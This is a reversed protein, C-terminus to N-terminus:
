DILFMKKTATAYPTRLEYYLIGSAGLESKNVRVENYGKAFDQEIMRLMRGTVDYITISANGGEPLNFGIMTEGNFPNPRNQYLEFESSSVVGSGTNFNLGVNLYGESGEEYAEATTLASNVTLVESLKGNANATFTLTFLEDDSSVSVGKVDNWSTTIYGDNLHSLGFNNENIAISGGEINTLTVVNPQFGLTFQYGLIQNFDSSKFVVSYENGAKLEQDQLEFTLSRNSRSNTGQLSASNAKADMNVDGVKIGVFRVAPQTGDFNIINVSESILDLFPNEPDNFTNGEYVFRWSNNNTFGDITNLIVRRIEVLDQGTVSGSRNVDAAIIKFPSDLREIGLIHRQILLIDLTNVGNRIADNRQPSLSFSSGIEIGSLEFIGEVNTITTNASIGDAIISVSEVAVSEETRVLGAVIGGGLNGPCPLGMNNQITITTTCFDWNGDLDGVWIRVSRLGVDECTFTMSHNSAPPPNTSNAENIPYEIRFILDENETCNDYSGADFTVASVTVMQDEPNNNPMLTTVIDHCVPSPKKCDRVTVSTTCAATNGCNDEVVYRIVHTGVPFNRNVTPGSGSATPSVSATVFTAPDEVYAFYQWIWRLDNEATCDDTASATLVLQEGTSCVEQFSCVSVPDPCTIIPAITNKIKIIQVHKTIALEISQSPFAEMMCWDIVQWERLIKYCAEEQIEFVHDKYTIGYQTCFNDQVRPRDYIRDAAISRSCAPNTQGNFQELVSPSLDNSPDTVCIENDSTFDCPFLIANGFSSLDYDVTIIQTGVRPNTNGAGVATFTRTVTGIGCTSIDITSTENITLGCNDFAYGDLGVFEGNIFISDRTEGANLNAVKGFISLNDLDFGCTVTIAPPIELIAPLKDQVELEVMCTNYNDSIDWVRLEVMIPAVVDVCCVDIYEKWTFDEDGCPAGGDMRRILIRDIGCNDYSGDDFSDWFVRATGDTGLSVTTFSKCVAIPNVEDVVVIERSCAASNGCGDYAIFNLINSGVQFGNVYGGQFDFIFPFGAFELSVRVEQSCNDSVVPKEIFLSTGCSNVNTWVTTSEPHCTIVPPTTDELTILQTGVREIVEGCYWEAVTWMRMIKRKGECGGVLEMDQYGILLNCFLNAGEPDLEVLVDDPRLISPYGGTNAPSIDTADCELVADEPFFITQSQSDGMDPRRVYVISTCEATNGAVDTVRWVREIVTTFGGSVSSDCSVNSRVESILVTDAIVCNDTIEPVFGFRPDEFAEYCEIEYPTCTISPAQKDEFKFYGWCSAGSTPDFLEAVLNVGYYISADPIIAPSGETGTALITGNMSTKITLVIADNAGCGNGAPPSSWIQNPRVSAQCNPGGIAINVDAICSINCQANSMSLNFFWFFSLMLIGYLASLWPISVRENTLIITSKQM